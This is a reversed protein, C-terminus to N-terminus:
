EPGGPTSGMVREVRGARKIFCVIEPIGQGNMKASQFTRLQALGSQGAGIIAIRKTMNM